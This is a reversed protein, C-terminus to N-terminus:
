LTYPKQIGWTQSVPVYPQPRCCPTYNERRQTFNESSTSCGQIDPSNAYDVYTQCDGNVQGCQYTGSGDYGGQQSVGCFLNSNQDKMIASESIGYKDAGLDGCQRCNM